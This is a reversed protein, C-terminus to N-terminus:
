LQRTYNLPLVRAEWAQPTPEIGMVRIKGDLGLPGRQVRNVARTGYVATGLTLGMPYERESAPLAEGPVPSSAPSGDFFDQILFTPMSALCEPRDVLASSLLGTWKSFFRSSASRRTM